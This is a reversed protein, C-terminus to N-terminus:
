EVLRNGRNATELGNHGHIAKIINDNIVNVARALGQRALDNISTAIDAYIKEMQKVNVSRVHGTSPPLSVSPSM